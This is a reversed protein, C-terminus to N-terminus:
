FKKQKGKRKRRLKQNSMSEKTNEGRILRTLDWILSPRLKNNEGKLLYKKQEKEQQPREKEALYFKRKEKFNSLRIPYRIPNGEGDAVVVVHGRGSKRIEVHFLKLAHNYMEKSTIENVQ